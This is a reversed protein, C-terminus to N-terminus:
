IKSGAYHVFNYFMYAQNLADWLADHPVGVRLDPQGAVGLSIMSNLGAILGNTEIDASFYIRSM